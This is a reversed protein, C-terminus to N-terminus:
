KRPLLNEMFEKPLIGFQKKFCSSFYKPDQFGVRYALDSVRMNPNSEALRKAEKM